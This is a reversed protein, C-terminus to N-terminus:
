TCTVYFLRDWEDWSLCDFLSNCHGASMFLPVLGIRHKLEKLDLRSV